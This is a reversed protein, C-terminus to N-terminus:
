RGAPDSGVADAGDFVGDLLAVALGKSLPDNANGCHPSQVCSPCGSECPCGRIMRRTESLLDGAADYGGRALGVGGPHGDHVFVTPRGTHPHLPTSLGGVDRRDCLLELPFLSIMGHEVAHIAGPFGAPDDARARVASEVAPPATFYLAATEM